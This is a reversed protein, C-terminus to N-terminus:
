FGRRSEKSAVVKPNPTKPAETVKACQRSFLLAVLAAAGLLALGSAWLATHLGEVFLAGHTPDLRGGASAGSPLHADVLLGLVAVGFVQGVQRLSNHVASAMGAHSADVASLATQTMPTLCTGIGAGLLAFNWWISGIPTHPGLRLLGLTAGGALILGALMPALPGVRGVARGSLPSAIAFAVGIASVDLGAAIPSRGQVLQFYQSFYVIAGVFAFFV